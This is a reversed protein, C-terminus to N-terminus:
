VLKQYIFLICLVLFALTGLSIKFQQYPTLKKWQIKSFNVYKKTGTEKDYVKSGYLFNWFGRLTFFLGWVAGNVAAITIVLALFIPQIFSPDYTGVGEGFFVSLFYGAFCFLFFGLPVSWVGDVLQLYFLIKKVLAKLSFKPPHERFYKSLLFYFCLLIIIVPLSLLM